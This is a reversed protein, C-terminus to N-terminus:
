NHWARCAPVNWPRSKRATTRTQVCPPPTRVTFQGFTFRRSARRLLFLSFVCVHMWTEFQYRFPSVSTRHRSSPQGVKACLLAVYNTLSQGSSLVPTYGEAHIPPPPPPPSSVIDRENVSLFHRWFYPHIVLYCATSFKIFRLYINQNATHPKSRLQITNQVRKRQYYIQNQQKGYRRTQYWGINHVTLCLVKNDFTNLVVISLVVHKPWYIFTSSRVVRGMLSVCLSTLIVTRVGNRLASILIHLHKISGITRVGMYALRCRWCPHM